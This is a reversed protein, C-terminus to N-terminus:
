SGALEEGYEDEVWGLMVQRFLMGAKDGAVTMEKFDTKDKTLLEQMLECAWVDESFGQVLFTPLQEFFEHEDVGHNFSVSWWYRCSSQTVPTMYHSIFVQPTADTIETEKGRLTWVHSVFVGPSVSVGEDYRTLEVGSSRLEEGFMPPMLSSLIFEQNREARRCAVRDGNKSIEVPNEFFDDDVGFSLNHLYAFHTLDNLNEQMLLYSSKIEFGGQITRYSDSSLHSLSPLRTLDAEGEGMWVLVLPGIEKVPYSKLARTPVRSQCPMHLLQGDASYRAGHYRCVLEDGDLGSEALPFSRHLCRNQLGVLEGATTRFFMISHELLTRALPERSFEDTTGAVYWQNYLLPLQVYNKVSSILKGNGSM